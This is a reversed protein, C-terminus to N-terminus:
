APRAPGRRSGGRDGGAHHVLGLLQRRIGVLEARPLLRSGAVDGHGACAGVRCVFGNHRLPVPALATRTCVASASSARPARSPGRRRTPPRNARATARVRARPRDRRAASRPPRSGRPRAAPRGLPPAARGRTGALDPHRGRRDQGAQRPGPAGQRRHRHGTRVVGDAKVRLAKQLATVAAGHYGAKLVTGYYARLPYDRNELAQWVKSDVVGTQPLHTPSRSRRSRPPRARGSPATSPWARRPGAAPDQGRHRQSGAKLVTSM